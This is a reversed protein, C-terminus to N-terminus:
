ASLTALEKLNEIFLNSFHGTQPRIQYIPQAIYGTEIIGGCFFQLQEKLFVVANVMAAHTPFEPLSSWAIGHAKSCRTTNNIDFITILVSSTLM